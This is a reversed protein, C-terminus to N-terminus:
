VYINYLTYSNYICAERTVRERERGGDRERKKERKRERGKEEARKMMSEGPRPM